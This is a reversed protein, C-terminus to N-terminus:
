LGGCIKIELVQRTQETLQYRSSQRLGVAWLIESDEAILLVDDRKASPVKENVLFDKLKKSRGDSYLAIRDGALRGRVVVGNKIIDYDFWKTYEKKPVIAWGKKEDQPDWAFCRLTIEYEGYQVVYSEGQEPLSLVIQKKEKPVKQYELSIGEYTKRATVFGPLEIKRGTQLSFLHLLGDVHKKEIDHRSGLFGTVARYLIRKKILDAEKGFADANILVEGEKEQVSRKYALHTQEELYEEMQQLEQSVECIHKVTQANVRESMAPLIFHRIRNRTYADESNTTDQCFPVELKELYEEVEQRSVGLLPHIYQGSVPRIGGLGRLNSGRALHMLVTEAQDDMQHALAIIGEEGAVEELAARRCERGAEEESLKKEKAIQKVDYRKMICMVNLKECLKEVYQADRDAEEGRIGHHVHVVKLTLNWAPQLQKFIYLLAVSDAGGSVGLIVEDGKRLMNWENMFEEVKQLM